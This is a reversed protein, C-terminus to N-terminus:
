LYFGILVGNRADDRARAIEEAPADAIAAFHGMSIAKSMNDLGTPLLQPLNLKDGLISDRGSPQLDLADVTTARGSIEEEGAVVHGFGVFDGRGVEEMVQVFAPLRDVGVRRKIRSLVIDNAQSIKGAATEFFTNTSSSRDFRDVFGPLLRAIRDAVRGAFKLRPKWFKDDVPFGYIWLWHGVYDVRNKEKFLVSAARIQACTGKPYLVVSGRYAQRDQVVDPLLGERRWRRVQDMTVRTEALVADVEAQSQRDLGVAIESAM